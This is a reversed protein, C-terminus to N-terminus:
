HVLLHTPSSRGREGDMYIDGQERYSTPVQDKYSVSANLRGISLILFLSTSERTLNPGAFTTMILITSTYMQAPLMLSLTYTNVLIGISLM